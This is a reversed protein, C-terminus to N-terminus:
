ECRASFSAPSGVFVISDANFASQKVPTHTAVVLVLSTFLDSGSLATMLKDGPSRSSITAANRCNPAFGASTFAPVAWVPVANWRTLANRVPKKSANSLPEDLPNFVHTFVSRSFWTEPDDPDEPEPDDRDDPE